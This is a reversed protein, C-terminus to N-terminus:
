HGLTAASYPKPAETKRVRSEEWREHNLSAPDLPPVATHTIQPHFPRNDDETPALLVEHLKEGERLGTFVVDVARGSMSIMREAVDLIRVPHGMDLILVEGPRGIAGAQIVLQCAEPITMFYRTVNPDTVTVPGGAEIQAIFTPLMSGRSGIVNGFRVSLYEHGSERAWWSTLREAVRKSHGLVSAPDAAKDTSINIFTAVGVKRAAELVNLTGLVNTKWAEEPYQELMPLHKLAAAHFIVEPRRREFIGDLAASDRIDALVVEDSDLLGHGSVSMQVGHLGSEDRDLMILESPSYKSLQRCLESGISGGAGTVLVRKGEIYGAISDVETNVPHRGIIDEIAVDRLDALKMGGELIDSLLPMVIMRLGAKDAEDAIERILHAEAKAICLVLAVAKTERAVDALNRKSGRVPVNSLRLQRKHPDDDILGVPVYPSAPDSLMSRVLYAGTQGAGYILTRQASEKPRVKRESVLRRVYRSGGMLVFAVPLAVVATSRPLGAPALLFLNVVFLAGSVTLVTALLTQAEHFAGHQHRGRYLALLWGVICQMGMALVALIGVSLWNVRGVVFDFRFLVAFVIAIVWAEADVAYQLVRHAWRDARGGDLQSGVVQINGMDIKYGGSQEYRADTRCRVKTTGNWNANRTRARTGFGSTMGVPSGRYM